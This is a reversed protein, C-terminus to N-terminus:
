QAQRRREGHVRDSIDRLAATFVHQEGMRSPTVALEAPFPSGDARMAVTEMWKGLFQSEGTGLYHNVGQRQGTRGARPTTVGGVVILLSGALDALPKRYFTM